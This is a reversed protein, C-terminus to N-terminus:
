HIAVGQHPAIECKLPTVLSGEFLLWPGLPAIYNVPLEWIARALAATRHPAWQPPHPPSFVIAAGHYCAWPVLETFLLSHSYM